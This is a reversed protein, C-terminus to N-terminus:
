RDSLTGYSEVVKRVLAKEKEFDSRIMDAIVHNQGKKITKECYKDMATLMEDIRGRKKERLFKATIALRLYRGAEGAALEALRGDRKSGRLFPLPDPLGNEEFFAFDSFIENIVRKRIENEASFFEMPDLKKKIIDTKTLKKSKINFAMLRDEKLVNVYLNENDKWKMSGVDKVLLEIRGTAFDFMMVASERRFLMRNGDPSLVPLWADRIFESFTKDDPNYKLISRWADYKGGEKEFGTCVYVDNGRRVIRSYLEANRFSLDPYEIEGLNTFKKSTDSGTEERLLYMRQLEYRPMGGDPFTAVGKPPYSIVYLLVFYRKGEYVTGSLGKVGVNPIDKHFLAFDISNGVFGGSIGLKKNEMGGAGADPNIVAFILVPLMIRLLLTNLNKM